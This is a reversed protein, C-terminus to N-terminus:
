TGTDKWDRRISSIHDLADQLAKEFQTALNRFESNPALSDGLRDRVAQGKQSPSVLLSRRDSESVRQELYGREVMKRVNYSVNSGAYYGREMLAGVSTEHESLNLLIVAQAANLDRIGENELQQKIMEQTERQLRAVLMIFDLNPDKM